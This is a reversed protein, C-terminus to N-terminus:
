LTTAGEIGIFNSSIDLQQLTRNEKLIEALATAGQNGMSNSSVDLQQLTRNEKMIEALATTGIDGISNASVDLQQLTRSEKLMKVLAMTGEDGISNTGISLQQLTINEKLMEALKTAGGDGICNNSVDLQQLTRNEKLLEVLIAAGRGTINNGYMVLKTIRVGKLGMSSMFNTGGALMEVCEDDVHCFSMDIEWKGTFTIHSLAYGLVFCDFPAMSTGRSNYQLRNLTGVLDNYINICRAEFLWHLSNLSIIAVHEEHLELVVPKLSNPPINEYKTLGAVFRQVNQFRAGSDLETHLNAQHFPLHPHDPMEHPTCLHLPSQMLHSRSSVIPILHQHQHPAPLPIISVDLSTTDSAIPTSSIEVPIRGIRTESEEQCDCRKIFALQEEIPQQSISMAALFEQLTLHFFNYSISAGQEVYLEPVSQMLDLTIFDRPLDKHVFKDEIMGKLAVECIRNFQEYINQPLDSFTKLTWEQQEYESHSLLYRLLLSRTLATYLETMTTPIFGEPSHQSSKYVETVIVANLPVYMMGRIYPYCKLYQLFDTRVQEDKIADHVYSVIDDKTFGLIEIHQSIQRRFRWHLFKTASLRSTILITTYPLFDKHLVDLFISQQTQLDRPLEDYGEFLLLVSEGHHHQIEKAVSNQLERDSHYFLDAVCKIEQVRKDRLRLLVVMRYQRLIKGKAWKRCVKWSFTTKGIGPAGEVLILKAPTGDEKKGIQTFDVEQKKKCIDDINGHLTSKTFEDAQQKSVQEKKVVALHVYKKTATPPWKSHTPWKKSTYVAKLYSAYQDM